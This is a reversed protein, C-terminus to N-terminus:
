SVPAAPPVGGSADPTGPRGRYRRSLDLYAVMLPSAVAPVEEDRHPRAVVYFDSLDAVQLQSTEPFTVAM